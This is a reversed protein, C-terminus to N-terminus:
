EAHNPSKNAIDLLKRSLLHELGVRKLLDKQQTTTTTFNFNNQGINKVGIYDLRCGSLEEFFRVHSVIEKSANGKNKHLRLTITKDILYSLVCITYHAKVHEETWVFM